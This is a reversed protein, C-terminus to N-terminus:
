GSRKELKPPAYKISIFFFKKRLFINKAGLMKAANIQAPNTKAQVSGENGAGPLLAGAGMLTDDFLWLL